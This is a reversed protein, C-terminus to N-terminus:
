RRGAGGAPASPAAAVVTALGLRITRSEHWPKM